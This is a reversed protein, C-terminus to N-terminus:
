LLKLCNLLAVNILAGVPADTKCCYADNQCPSGIAQVLCNLLGSCCVQKGNNNCNSPPNSNTRADLEAPAAMATAALALASLAATYKM